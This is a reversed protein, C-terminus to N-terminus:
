EPKSLSEQLQQASLKVERSLHLSYLCCRTIPKALRLELAQKYYALQAAYRDALQAADSVRDTKYDVLEAHDAFVLVADAVGQVLVRADGVAKGPALRSAPLSTIFDFERLLRAPPEMAALMRRFLDSEFFALVRKKDLAAASQADLLNSAVMRQLETELAAAPEQRFAEFNALQLFRHAATGRQAGTLGKRRSAFRPVGPQWGFSAEKHSLSSVSVKAPVAALDALPDQWAFNEQMRAWLDQDPAPAAKEEEETQGCDQLETRITVQLRSGM